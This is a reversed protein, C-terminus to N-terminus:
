HLRARHRRCGTRDNRRPRRAAATSTPRACSRTYRESSAARGGSWSRHAHHRLLLGGDEAGFDILLFDGSSSRVREVLARAAAGLAARRWSRRFRFARAGRTACRRRSCARWRCARDHRRPGAAAHARARADRHREGGRHARDRGSGEARAADRRSGGDAAVALARGGRAAASLRSAPSAGVRLGVVKSDSSSRAAAAVARDM